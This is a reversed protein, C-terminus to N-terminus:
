HLFITQKSQNIEKSYIKSMGKLFNLSSIVEFVPVTLSSVLIFNSINRKPKLRNEQRPLTIFKKFNFKREFFLTTDPQGERERM